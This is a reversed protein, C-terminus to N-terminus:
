ASRRPRMRLLARATPRADRRLLLLLDLVLELQDAIEAEGAEKEHHGVGHPIRPCLLMRQWPRPLAAFEATANQRPM